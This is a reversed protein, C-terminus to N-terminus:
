PATSQLANSLAVGHVAAGDEVGYQYAVSFLPPLGAPWSGPIAITGAPSTTLPLMMLLAPVLVGGKFPVGPGPPGICLMALASGAAKSLNISVPSGPSQVGTGTLLPIGASGALGSGLNTWVSTVKARQNLLVSVTGSSVDSTVVDPNGDVDFDGVALTYPFEGVAFTGQLTLSGDGNGVLLIVADATYGPDAVVVDQHGDADFDGVGVSSLSQGVVLSAPSAFSGDGRGIAISVSAPDSNATVLDPKGDGNFDGTAISRPKGAIPVSGHSVFTGDGQGLKIGIASSASDASALDQKADGNFEGLAIEYADAGIPVSGSNTFSGNGQGLLIIVTSPSATSNYDVAALDSTADGNFDGVEIALLGDGVPMTGNSTFSGNGEGMFISLGNAAAAALDQYGDGDFRGTAIALPQAGLAISGSSAFTGNGQGLLITAASPYFSAAALDPKGDGNFEGLAACHPQSGVAHSLKGTFSGNGQGLVLTVGAPTTTALDPKGDTNFDGVAVPGSPSGTIGGIIPPGFDFTGASTFAGDGHGLLVSAAGSRLAVIDQRGDGNFDDVGAAWPLPGVPFSGNNTFSGDGQGLFVTVSGAQHETMALDQRGDQDFDGVVISRIWKSIHFSGLSTFSGTGDGLLVNVTANDDKVWGYHAAALDQKADGNFDGVLCGTSDPAIAFSGATTFTGTGDGLLITVSPAHSISALDQQGDGNFDGVTVSIPQVGVAVSGGSTFSGDGQGLLLKVTAGSQFSVTAVDPHGDGNFEGVAVGVGGSGLVLSPNATFTGNGQAFLITLSTQNTSYAYSATALDPKGDGNFEGVFIAGSQGGAAVSDPFLPAGVQATAAPGWSAAVMVIWLFAAPRLWRSAAQVCM